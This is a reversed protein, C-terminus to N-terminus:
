VTRSFQRDGTRNHGDFAMAANRVFLRGDGIVEIRRDSITLFGDEVMPALEKAVEPFEEHFRVPFRTEVDPIDVAFNCMLSTIIHRRLDDDATLEYGRAVALSGGEIAREYDVLRPHNQLFAGTVDGIASMGFAVTDPASRVTYGMFNRWLTGKSAAQGLEDDPLAFHDMGVAVYGKELFSERAKLFVQLKQDPPPLAQEDLKRQHGKMWPVMAFSYVALREPRIENVLELTREFGEPTQHPLGYILDLNASAFGLERAKEILGRTLDYGQIRNVAQQVKEDFDQVGMSIRNFGLECLVELHATTTVRPDVEIAAESDAVFDFRAAVRAHLARIEDPHLYTPTGGGWHYQQVERRGGLRDAVMDIERGLADLYRSLPERAKSIVVNCGCFLCREECFPLHLYVALPTKRNALADLHDSYVRADVSETFERATPYSTYRPGPKDYRALISPDM